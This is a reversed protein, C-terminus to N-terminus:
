FYVVSNDWEQVLETVSNDEECIVHLFQLVKYLRESFDFALGNIVHSHLIFNLQKIKQSPAKDKLFKILNNLYLRVVTLRLRPIKNDPDYGNSLKLYKTIRLQIDYVINKNSHNHDIGSPIHPLSNDSM